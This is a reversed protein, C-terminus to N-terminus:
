KLKSLVLSRKPREPDVLIFIERGILAEAKKRTSFGGLGISGTLQETQFVYDYEIGVQDGVASVRAIKAPTEVGRSAFASFYRVRWGLIAMDAVTMLLFLILITEKSFSGEDTPDDEVLLVVTLYVIWIVIVSSIVAYIFIDKSLLDGLTPRSVYEAGELEGASNSEMEVPEEFGDCPELYMLSRPRQALLM